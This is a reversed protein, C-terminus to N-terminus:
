PLRWLVAHNTIPDFRVGAAEFRARQDLMAQLGSMQKADELTNWVSVNTMAGLERDLGVYYAVLGHLASIAPGLVGEGESLLRAVEDARAPDFAGKSIRVVMPWTHM